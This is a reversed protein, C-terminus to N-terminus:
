VGAPAYAGILRPRLCVLRADEVVITLGFLLRSVGALECLRMTGVVGVEPALRGM